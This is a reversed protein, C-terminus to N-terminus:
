QLLPIFVPSVPIHRYESLLDSHNQEQHPWPFVGVPKQMARSQMTYILYHVSLYDTKQTNNQVTRKLSSGALGEWMMSYCLPSKISGDDNIVNTILSSHLQLSQQKPGQVFLATIYTATGTKSLKLSFSLSPHFFIQWFYRSHLKSKRKLGMWTFRLSKNVPKSITSESTGDQYLVQM